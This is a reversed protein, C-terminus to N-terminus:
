LMNQLDNEYRPDNPFLGWSQILAINNSVSKMKFTPAKELVTYNKWRTECIAM